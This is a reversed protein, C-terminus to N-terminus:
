GGQYLNVRNKYLYLFKEMGEDTPSAKYSLVREKDFLYSITVFGSYKHHINTLNKVLKVHEEDGVEKYQKDMGVVIEKVGLDILLKAQYAAFSSGCVAVALNNEQGFMSGYQLVSKEGEFVFATKVKKINEKNQYLGYLNFSLPHNYLEKGFFMPRYKGYKKADEQSLTRERIGILRGKIDRHPIIVGGSLPNYCIEFLDMVSKDIGDKEWSAVIPRPLYKLFEAEYEKLEITKASIDINQIRELTNIYSIGETDRLQFGKNKKESFNFFNAIYTVAQPLGYNGKVRKILEYIDFSDGCDTYCRFLKSNAYYYLKHSNGCHCITKAVINGNQMRPEADLETLLDFVQEVTLNEKIFDKDYM